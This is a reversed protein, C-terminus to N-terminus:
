SVPTMEAEKTEILSSRPCMRLAWSFSHIEEAVETPARKPYSIAVEMRSMASTYLAIMEPPRASLIPRFHTKAMPSKHNIMPAMM